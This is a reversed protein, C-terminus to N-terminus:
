GWSNKSHPSTLERDFLSRHLNRSLPMKNLSWFKSQVSDKLGRICSHFQVLASAPSIHGKVAGIYSWVDKLFTGKLFSMPQKHMVDSGKCMHECLIQIVENKGSNLSNWYGPGQIQVNFLLVWQLGVSTYSIQAAKRMEEVYGTVKGM